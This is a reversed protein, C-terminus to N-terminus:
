VGNILLNNLYKIREDESNYYSSRALINGCYVAFLKIVLNFIEINECNKSTTDLYERFRDLLDIYEGYIVYKNPINLKILKRLDNIMEDLRNDPYKDMLNYNYNKFLNTKIRSFVGDTGLRPSSSLIKESEKLSAYISILECILGDLDKYHTPPVDNLIVALSVGEIYSRRLYYDPDRNHSHIVGTSFLFSTKRKEKILRIGLDLDEAYILEQFKFEDFVDKKFCSCVNDLGAVRRLEAVTLKQLDDDVSFVLDGNLELYRYHNWIASQAFLDADSRPVQRCTVASIDERDCLVKVLGYLWLDGIPIADQVTFLIYDGSAKSAAFNRTKGHGFDEPNIEYVMAGYDKAIDITEDQSGSDVVIIEIEEIGRQCRIKELTYAFQSGANRTPIVVSVKADIVNLEDPVNFDQIETSTSFHIRGSLLKRSRQYERFKFWFSDWGENAIIRCSKLFLDYFARRRTCQPCMREIFINHFKNVFQWIISSQMEAAVREAIEARSTAQKLQIQYNSIMAGLDSESQGQTKCEVQQLIRNIEFQHFYSFSLLAETISEKLQEETALLEPTKKIIRKLSREAREPAKEWMSTIKNEIKGQKYYQIHESTVSWIHHPTCAFSLRRIMDWDILIDLEEDYLGVVDLLARKHLICKHNVYNRLILMSPSIDNRYEFYRKIEQGFEDICVEYWDDYVLDSQQEMAARLLVELHIPYLIDDDDLYGIFEASSNTIGLNLAHPKGKHESFIYKIRSDSFEDIIDKVDEGGDNVIILNWNQYTQNLVSKIARRITSRGNFTPMIVDITNEDFNIKKDKQVFFSCVSGKKLPLDHWKIEHTLSKLEIALDEKTISKITKNNIVSIGQTVSIIIRGGNRVVRVTEELMRGLDDAHQLAEAIIVSDFSSEPFALDTGDAILFQGHNVISGGIVSDASHDAPGIDSCSTDFGLKACESCLRANKCGVILVRQGEILHSLLHIRASESEDFQQSTKVTGQM